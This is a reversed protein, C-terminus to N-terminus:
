GVTDDIVYASTLGGDVTYASGTVYSAEDSALFAVVNAIEEPQALRGMPLYRRRLRWAEEDALFAQVLPTATPGPCIAVARIGRRAYMVALERTMALVGGKAATYAIQPFASGVLAVISANNVIVGGGAQLLHPVGAKCCLFVSTLNAAITREWVGLETEVPGADGDLCVGANNFIVDIGGFAAAGQAFMATCAAEQTLDGIVAVAQGGAEAVVAVSAEAARAQVDACIVRAGERACKVATARGIGGGAGTIFVRKGKLRM